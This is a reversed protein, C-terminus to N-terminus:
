QVGGLTAPDHVGVLDHRRRLRRVRRLVLVGEDRAVVDVMDDLYSQLSDAEGMRVYLNETNRARVKALQDEAIATGKRCFLVKRAGHLALYIDFPVQEGPSLIDIHLPLFGEEAVPGRDPGPRQDATLPAAMQKELSM